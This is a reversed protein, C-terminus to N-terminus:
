DEFRFLQNKDFQWEPTDLRDGFKVSYWPTLRSNKPNKLIHIDQAPMYSQALIFLKEGTDKDEAMDVVIACHGPNEGKLFVDGIRMDELPVKKMEQSLSLTGAYAFVMDLYNRFSSYDNSYASRKVWYAKDGEVVIRNGQMWTPYDAKFGNTFNFHIKDYLGKDYLYEARLRIVADACQQLDRDGVDIDIVAEHVDRPKVDGNYYHVKSGGPKLPLTRLYQGYSGEEVKVREFGKPTNFREEVTKGKENILNGEQKVSITSDKVNKTISLGELLNIIEKSLREKEKANYMAGNIQLLNKEFNEGLIYFRLVDGKKPDWMSLRILGNEPFTQPEITRVASRTFTHGNIVKLIKNIEARDTIETNAFGKGEISISSFDYEKLINGRPYYYLTLSVVIVSIVVLTKIIKERSKKVICIILYIFALILVAPLLCIIVSM